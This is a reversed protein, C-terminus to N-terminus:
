RRERRARERWTREQEREAVHRMGEAVADLADREFAAVDELFESRFEEILAYTWRDDATVGRPLVDDRLRDALADHDSERLLTEADALHDMGHGIAHHFAVLHGHARHFWEVGIEVEHLADCETETLDSTENEVTM